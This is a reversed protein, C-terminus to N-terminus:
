VDGQDQAPAQIQMQAQDQAPAQDQTQNLAQDNSENTIQYQSQDQDQTQLEDAFLTMPALAVLGTLAITAFKNKMTILTLCVGDSAVSVGIDKKTLKLNSNIFLNVGRDRKSIRKIVGQNFIIGNFM